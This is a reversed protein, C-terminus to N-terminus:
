EQSLVVPSGPRASHLRQQGADVFDIAVRGADPKMEVGELERLRERVVTVEFLRSAPKPQAAPEAEGVLNIRAM